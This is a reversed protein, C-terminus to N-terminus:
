CAVHLMNCKLPLHQWLAFLCPHVSGEVDLKLYGISNVNYKDVLMEFSYRGM